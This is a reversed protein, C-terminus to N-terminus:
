YDLIFIIANNESLETAMKNTVLLNGTRRGLYITKRDFIVICLLQIAALVDFSFCGRNSYASNISTQDNCIQNRFM